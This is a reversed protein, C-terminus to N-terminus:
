DELHPIKGVTKATIAPFRQQRLPKRPNDLAVVLDWAL